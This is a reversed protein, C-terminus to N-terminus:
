NDWPWAQLWQEKEEETSACQQIVQEKMQRLADKVEEYQEPSVVLGREPFLDGLAKKIGAMMDMGHVVAEADSIIEAREEATFVPLKSGFLEPQSEFLELLKAMYIAEGDVFLKRVLVILSHVPEEQYQMGRWASPNHAHLWFRYQASLSALHFNANAQTRENPPVESINGPPEPQELGKVQPGECDLISPQRVQVFLPAIDVSQWDIISTITTSNSPDVFINGEHLDGHWLCPQTTIWDRPMISGVIDLYHQIARVKKKRTRRFLGPGHLALSSFPWHTTQEVCAKERGGVASLYSRATEGAKVDAVISLSFFFMVDFSRCPGRNVQSGM